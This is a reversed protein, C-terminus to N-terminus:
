FPVEVRAGSAVGVRRQRRRAAARNRVTFLLSWCQRATCDALACRYQRRCIAAVYDRTIGADAADAIAQQLKWAAVRDPNTLGRLHANLSAGDEGLLFLFHAEVLKYDTQSCCRLGLKSVASAVQAHRFQERALATACDGSGGGLRAFARDSLMALRAKQKKSLPAPM